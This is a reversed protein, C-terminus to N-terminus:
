KQTGQSKTHTRKRRSTAPKPAAANETPTALPEHPAEGEPSAAATLTTDTQPPANVASSLEAPSDVAVPECASGALRDDHQGTHSNAVCPQPDIAVPDESRVPGSPAKALMALVSRDPCAMVLSRSEPASAHIVALGSAVAASVASIEGELYISVLGAGAKRYGTFTVGAAKCAADAAQIARTLGITEIVGLSITM